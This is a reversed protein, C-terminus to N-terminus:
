TSKQLILVLSGSIIALIAVAVKLWKTDFKFTIYPGILGGAGAAFCLLIPLYWDVSGKMIWWIIFSAICIPVESFTTTAVSVRADLGGLIKGTSTVPGFGGGSMAKNVSAVIGVLYIKWWAFKYMIPRLCLIGMAIVLIGLYINYWLAPISLALFVGLTCALLGPIVIALVVRFDRTLGSFDGNKFHNHRFTAVTGGVAQSLVVAPVVAQPSFGMLILVPSLITGYMMGLSSDILEMLVAFLFIFVPILIDM